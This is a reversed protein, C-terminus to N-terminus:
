WPCAELHALCQLWAESLRHPLHDKATLDLLPDPSLIESSGAGLQLPITGLSM